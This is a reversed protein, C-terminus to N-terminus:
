LLYDIKIENEHNMMRKDNKKKSLMIISDLPEKWQDDKGIAIMAIVEFIHPNTFRDQM